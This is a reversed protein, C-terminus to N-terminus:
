SEKQKAWRALAAKGPVKLTKCRALNVATAFLCTWFLVCCKAGHRDEAEDAQWSSCNIRRRGDAGAFLAHSRAAASKAITFLSPQTRLRLLTSM